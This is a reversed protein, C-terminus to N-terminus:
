WVGLRRQIPRLLVQPWYILRLNPIGKALELWLRRRAAADLAKLDTEYKSKYQEVSGINELLACRREIEEKLKEKKEGHAFKPRHEKDKEIPVYEWQIVEGESITVSLILSWETYNLFSDFIFNGLSYAILAGNISEIGQVVHPHHGIIVSAGAAVLQRAIQKQRTNPRDILEDGWHVSVVVNKGEAALSKINVLLENLEAGGYYAYKEELICIGLISVIQNMFTVQAIQVGRHFLGDRGSGVVKIGARELNKVTDAAAEPGQELIHNNAVHAVTLGWQALYEATEPRGRMQLSRLSYEKRGIDSLVSEINCLVVDHECLFDVIERPLFDNRYKDLSSAVGHGLAYFSDGCMVDGVCAIKLESM